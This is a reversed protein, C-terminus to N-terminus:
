SGVGEVYILRNPPLSVNRVATEDVKRKREKSRRTAGTVGKWHDAFSAQDSSGKGKRGRCGGDDSVIADSHVQGLTGTKGPGVASEIVFPSCQVDVPRELPYQRGEVENNSARIFVRQPQGALMTLVQDVQLGVSAFSSEFTASVDGRRWSEGNVECVTLALRESILVVVRLPGTRDGDSRVVLLEGDVEVSTRRVKPYGGVVLSALKALCFM